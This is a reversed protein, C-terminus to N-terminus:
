LSGVGLLLSSQEPAHIVPRMGALAPYHFYFANLSTGVTDFVTRQLGTKIAPNKIKSVMIILFFDNQLV